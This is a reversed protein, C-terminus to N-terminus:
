KKYVVCYPLSLFSCLRLGGYVMLRRSLRSALWKLGLGAVRCLGCSLPRNDVRQQIIGKM